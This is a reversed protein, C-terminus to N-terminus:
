TRLSVLSFVAAYSGHVARSSRLWTVRLLCHGQACTDRTGVVRQPLCSAQAGLGKVRPWLCSSYNVAIGRRNWRRRRPLSLSRASAPVAFSFDSISVPILLLCTMA